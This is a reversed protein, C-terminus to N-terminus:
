GLVASAGTVATTKATRTRPKATVARQSLRTQTVADIVNTAAPATIEATAGAPSRVVRGGPQPAETACGFGSM